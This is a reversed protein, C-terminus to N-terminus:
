NHVHEPREVPNDMAPTERVPNSILTEDVADDPPNDLPFLCKEEAYPLSMNIEQGDIFEVKWKVRVDIEWMNEPFKFHTETNQVKKLATVIKGDSFCTGKIICLMGPKIKSM